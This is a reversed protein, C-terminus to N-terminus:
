RIKRNDITGHVIRRYGKKEPSLVETKASGAASKKNLKDLGNEYLKKLCKNVFTSDSRRGDSLKRLDKLLKEGLMDKHDDFMLRCPVARKELMKIKLDKKVYTRCVDNYVKRLQILNNKYKKNENSLTEVRKKEENLQMKLSEIEKKLTITENSQNSDQVPTINKNTNPLNASYFESATEIQNQKKPKGFFHYIKEENRTENKRKM